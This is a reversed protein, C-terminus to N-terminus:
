KSSSIKTPMDDREALGVTAPNEETSLQFELRVFTAHHTIHSSLEVSEQRKCENQEAM